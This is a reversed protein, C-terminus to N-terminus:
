NQANIYSMIEDFGVNLDVYIYHGVTADYKYSVNNNWLGAAKIDTEEIYQTYEPLAADYAAKAGIPVYIKGFTIDSLALSSFTPPTSSLFYIDLTTFVKYEPQYSGCYRFANDGIHTCTEPILIKHLKGCGSFAADPIQAIPMYGLLSADTLNENDKFWNPNIGFIDYNKMCKPDLVQADNQGVSIVKKEANPAEDFIHNLIINDGYGFQMINPNSIFDFVVPEAAEQNIALEFSKQEGLLEQQTVVIVCSRVEEVINKTVSIQLVNNVINLTCWDNETKLVATFPVNIGEITSDVTCNTTGEAAAVNFETEDNHPKFVITVTPTPTPPEPGPGPTDGDKILTDILKKNARIFDNSFNFLKKLARLKENM